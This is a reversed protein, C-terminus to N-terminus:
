EEQLDALMKQLDESSKEGLEQMSKAEIFSKLTAIKARKALRNAAKGKLDLRWAIVHKLMELKLTAEANSTTKETIFSEEASEKVEKNVKKAIIDLSQLSMDWLDESSIMGKSTVFRLKQKSAKEFINSM